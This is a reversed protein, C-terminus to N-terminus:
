SVAEETQRDSKSQENRVRIIKTDQVTYKLGYGSQYVMEALVIFQVDLAIGYYTDTEM